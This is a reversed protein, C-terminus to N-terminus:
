GCRAPLCVAVGGVDGCQWGLEPRCNVGCLPYCRGFPAAGPHPLCVTGRTGCGADLPANTTDPSTGPLVCLPACFGLANGPQQVCVGNTSPQCVGCLGFAAEAVPAHGANIDMCATSDRATPAGCAVAAVAVAALM